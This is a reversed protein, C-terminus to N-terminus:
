SDLLLNELITEYADTKRTEWTELLYRDFESSKTNKIKSIIQDCLIIIEPWMWRLILKNYKEESEHLLACTKSCVWARLAYIQGLTRIEENPFEPIKLCTWM